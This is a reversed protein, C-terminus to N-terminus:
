PPWFRCVHLSMYHCTTVHLQCTTVHLSMYNVHLSMYTHTLTGHSAMYQQLSLTGEELLTHYAQMCYTYAHSTFTAYRSGPNCQVTLCVCCVQQLTMPLGGAELELCGQAPLTFVPVSALCVHVHVHASVCAHAIGNMIYTHFVTYLLM